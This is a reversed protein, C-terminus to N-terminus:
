STGLYRSDDGSMTTRWIMPQRWFGSRLLAGVCFDYGLNCTLFRTALIPHCRMNGDKAEKGLGARWEVFSNLGSWLGRRSTLSYCGFAELCFTRQTQDKSDKISLPFWVGDFLPMKTSRLCNSGLVGFISLRRWPGLQPFLSEIQETLKRIGPDCPRRNVTVGDRIYGDRENSEARIREERQEGGGKSFWGVVLSSGKCATSKGIWGRVLVLFFM